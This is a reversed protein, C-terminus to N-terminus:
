KEQDCLVCHLHSQSTVCGSARGPSDVHLTADGDGRVFPCRPVGRASGVSRLGNCSFSKSKRRSGEEGYMHSIDYRDKSSLANADGRLLHRQWFNLAGHLPLGADRLFLGLVRRGIFPLHHGQQLHAYLLQM